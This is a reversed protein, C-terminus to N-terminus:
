SLRCVTCAPADAPTNAPCFPWFRSHTALPRAFIAQWPSLLLRSLLDLPFAPCVFAFTLVLIIKIKVYIGGGSLKAEQSLGTGGGVWGKEEERQRWLLKKERQGEQEQGQEQEQERAAEEEAKDGEEVKEDGKRLRFRCGSPRVHDYRTEEILDAHVFLTFLLFTCSFLFVAFFEGDARTM